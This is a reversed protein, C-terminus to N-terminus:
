GVTEAVVNHFYELVDGHSADDDGGYQAFVEPSIACLDCLRYDDEEDAVVYGCSRHMPDGCNICTSNSDQRRFHIALERM